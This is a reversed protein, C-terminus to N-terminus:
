KYSISTFAEFHRHNKYTLVSLHAGSIRVELVQVEIPLLHREEGIKVYDWTARTEGSQSAYGKPMGTTVIELRRVLNDTEAISVEGTHASPYRDDDDGWTYGFCSDPPSTFRYLLVPTGAEVARRSFELTVDCSADFIHALAGNQQGARTAPKLHEFLDNWLEGNRVINRHMAHSGQFSVESQLTEDLQWKPPNSAPSRYQKSIEDANFNPLAALYKQTLARSRELIAAPSDKAPAVAPSDPLQLTKLSMSAPPDNSAPAPLMNGKRRRASSGLAGALEAVSPPRLYDVAKAELSFWENEEDDPFREIRVSRVLVQDGIKYRSALTPASVAGTDPLRAFKLVGNAARTWVSHPTVAVLSGTYQVDDASFGRQSVMLVLAAVPIFLRILRIQPAM